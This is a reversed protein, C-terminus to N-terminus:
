KQNSLMPRYEPFFLRQYRTRLIHPFFVACHGIDMEADNRAFVPAFIHQDHKLWSGHISAVAFPGLALHLLLCTNAGACYDRIPLSVMEGIGAAGGSVSKRTIPAPTAPSRAAMSSAGAPRTSTSAFRSIVSELVWNAWPPMAAARLSSSSILRCKCSVSFAPSPSQLGSAALTRTSSAGSRM